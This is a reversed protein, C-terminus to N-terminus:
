QVQYLCGYSIERCNGDVTKEWDGTVGIVVTVTDDEKPYGQFIGLGLAALIDLDKKGGRAAETLVQNYFTRHVGAGGRIVSVMKLSALNETKGAPLDKYVFLENDSIIALYAFDRDTHNSVTGKLTHSNSMSWDSLELSGSGTEAANGTLFYCDEFSQEPDAGFVLEEGEKKVHYYYGNDGKSYSSMGAAPGISEYGKALRLSWEKYGVDYCRLYTQASDPHLLDSVTVSYVRTDKVEFGRGAIAILLIGALAAVPVAVWYLERKKAIKLILYLAPGAFIVYLIVLVKLVGFNLRSDENGLTELIGRFLSQNTINYYTDQSVYRASANSSATELLRRVFEEQTGGYAYADGGLKGLDSLSYPFVGVAGDTRSTIFCDDYTVSYQFYEDVLEAVAIQATDWEIDVPSEYEGPEYIKDCTIGLNDLGSLVEDARSGTGIILVGGDEVWRDIADVTEQALIGTNYNDIVLFVLSDLSDELNDQVLEVLKIPYQGSQYYAIKEGGMDLYTLASYDDSLIGMSLVETENWRFQKLATQGVVKSRKDLFIASITADADVSQKPVKVEFQKTSGQPLAIATDYAAVSGWREVQLRVVGEWDRGSNGATVSIDYTNGASPLLVAEIDFDSGASEAFVNMRM